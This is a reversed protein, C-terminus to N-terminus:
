PKRQCCHTSPKSFSSDPEPVLDVGSGGWPHCRALRKLTLWSGRVAGHTRLAEEAYASCTPYFRCRSPLMPSIAYRYVGILLTLFIVAPNGSKRSKEAQTNEM